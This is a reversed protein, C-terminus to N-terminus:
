HGSHPAKDECVPLTNNDTFYSESAKRSVSLILADPPYIQAKGLHIDEDGVSLLVGSLKNVLGDTYGSYELVSIGKLSSDTDLKVVCGGVLCPM